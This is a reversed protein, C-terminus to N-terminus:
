RKTGKRKSRKPKPPAKIKLQKAVVTKNGARDKVTVTVRYTGRKLYIHTARHRVTVAESARSWRLRVSKVGSDDARPVGPHADTADIKVRVVSGTQRKGTIKMSVLPALSDVFGSAPNAVSTLGARNVATVQWTDRGQPLAVPSRIETATTTAIVVGDAKVVYEPGGWRESASTWQLTPNVTTQYPASKIAKFGGPPQFLQGAIIRTQAGSGQVWAIAADGSLDGGGFLGKGADTPGFTPSSVVEEPGL